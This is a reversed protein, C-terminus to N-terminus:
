RFYWATLVFVGERGFLAVGLARFFRFKIVISNWVSFRNRGVCLWASQVSLWELALVSSAEFNCQSTKSVTLSKHTLTSLNVSQLPLVLNGPYLHLQM